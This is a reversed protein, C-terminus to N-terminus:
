VIGERFEVMVKFVKFDVLVMVWFFKIRGCGEYLDVKIVEEEEKFVQLWCIYCDIVFVFCFDVECNKFKMLIFCVKIYQINM